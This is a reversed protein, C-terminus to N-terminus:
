RRRRQRLRQLYLGPLGLRSGQRYNHRMYAAPPLLLARFHRWRAHWGPQSRWALWHARLRSHRVALLATAAQGAGEHKLGTLMSESVPTFIVM